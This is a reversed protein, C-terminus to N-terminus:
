EFSDSMLLTARMFLRAQNDVVETETVAFPAHAQASVDFPRDLRAPRADIVIRAESGSELELQMDLSQGGAAHECRGPGDVVCTWQVVGEFGTTGSSHSMMTRLPGPLPAGEYRVRMTVEHRGESDTTGDLTVAVEGSAVAAPWEYEAIEFNAGDRATYRHATALFGTSRPSTILTTYPQRGDHVPYTEGIDFVNYGLSAGKELDIRELATLVGNALQGVRVRGLAGDPAHSIQAVSVFDSAPPQESKWRLTGDAGDLRVLGLISGADGRRAYTVFVDNGIVRVHPTSSRTSEGLNWTWGVQGTAADLRRVQLETTQSAVRRLMAQVVAGDGVGVAVISGFSAVDHPASWAIAGSAPDFRVLRDLARGYAGAGVTVVEVYPGLASRWLDAGTAPDLRVLETSETRGFYSNHLRAVAYLEGTTTSVVREYHWAESAYPDSSRSWRKTGDERALRSVTSSGTYSYSPTDPIHAHVSVLDGDPLAAVGSDTVAAGIREHWLVSRSAADVRAIRFIDADSYSTAYLDPGLMRGFGYLTEDFALEDIKWVRTGSRPLVREVGAGVEGHRSLLMVGSDIKVDANDATWTGVVEGTAPDLADVALITTEDVRERHWVLVEGPTLAISRNADVERSWVTTGDGAAIRRLAYGARDPAPPVRLLVDDNIFRIATGCEFPAGEARIAGSRKELVVVRCDPEESAPQVVLRISDEEIRSARTIVPPRQWLVAGSAGDLWYLPSTSGFSGDAVLAGEPAVELPLIGSSAGPLTIRWMVGTGDGAERTISRPAGYPLGYRSGDAAFRGPGFAGQARWVPTLYADLGVTVNSSDVLARGDGLFRFTGDIPLSIRAIEAGSAADVEVIHSPDGDGCLAIRGHEFAIVGPTSDTRQAIPVTWRVAPDIWEAAAAGGANVCLLAGCALLRSVPNGMGSGGEGLNVLMM